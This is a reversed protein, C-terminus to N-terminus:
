PEDQFSGGGNSPAQPFGSPALSNAQSNDLYEAAIRLLAPSDKFAGLFKNCVPCLLGRVKGTAHCHDICIHLKGRLTCFKGCIWCAGGTSNFMELFQALSLGHVKARKTLWYDETRTEIFKRMRAKYGEPDKARHSAAYGARRKKYAPDDKLKERLRQSKLRACEMCGCDIVTRNAIHGKACPKGTFYYPRGTAIAQARALNKAPM